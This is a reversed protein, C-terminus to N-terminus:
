AALAYKSEGIILAEKNSNNSKIFEKLVDKFLIPNPIEIPLWSQFPAPNILFPMVIYSNNFIGKNTILIQFSPKSLINSYSVQGYVSPKYYVQNTISIYKNNSIFLVEDDPFSSIFELVFEGEALKYEDNNYETTPKVDIIYQNGLEDYGYYFSIKPFQGSLENIKNIIYQEITKKEM